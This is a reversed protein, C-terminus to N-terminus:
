TRSPAWWPETRVGPRFGVDSDRRLMADMDSTWALYDVVRRGGKLWWSTAAEM